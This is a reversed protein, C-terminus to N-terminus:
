QVILKKTSSGTNTRINILYFGNQYRSVDLNMVNTGAHINIQESHVTQGLLNVVTLQASSNETSEIIVKANNRAPNPYVQMDKVSNNATVGVNWAGTSVEKINNFSGVEDVDLQLWHLDVMTTCIAANAEKIHSGPFYSSQWLLNIKGNAVNSIAPFVNENVREIAELAEGESDFSHFLDWNMYMFDPGYSVWSIDDNDWTAGGDTSKTVFIGRFMKRLEWEVFPFEVEACYVLYLTGDHWSMQPMSVLTVGYGTMHVDLSSETQSALFFVTDNGSLEPMDFMHIGRSELHTPNLAQGQDTEHTLPAMTSNWYVLSSYLPYWSTKGDTVDDNLFRTLSFAVHVTGNDDVLINNSGDPVFPTDLVSHVSEDFADPIPSDFIVTKEWTRGCDESLWYFIDSYSDGFVVAVRSGNASISYSDGSFQRQKASTMDGVIAPDTWVVKHTTRDYVGRYYLLCVSIGEYLFPNEADQDTCAILHITDEVTAIAPWLLCTSTTTGNSVEPGILTEFNWDGDGKTERTSIILGTTGNHSVIIEGANNGSGLSGITGWGAKQNEIREYSTHANVLSNGDFYNYGTGRSATNAAACTTWVFSVTGDDHAVIRNSLSSNTQLDYYTHGVYNGPTYRNNVPSTMVEPVYTERGTLAAKKEVSVSAPDVSQLVANQAIAAIAFSAILFSLLVKKM